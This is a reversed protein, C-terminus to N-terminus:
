RNLNEIAKFNKWCEFLARPLHFCGKWKGGKLTLLKNGERNLYGFWEGKERDPFRAWTYHHVKEYWEKVDNRGTLLYARSLAVLAELHVWWLKQDWELQQPPAGKSDMFYYIGGYEKDWSHDLIHLCLDTTQTILEPRNLRKAIDMLFWMAEIGHGPNLHRGEFTDLFRGETGNYEHILGTQPNYHKTLIQQVCNEYIKVVAEKSLLDEMEYTLYATMMPLGFSELPRVGTSKEFKGKPNDLRDMYKQYTTLAIALSEQDGSAKAYEYFGLAAFCDSFINFAHTLPKGERTLSFYFNGQEDRGHKKLFRIGNEAIQLWKENKEFRNYLMSFTWIQRGQLWMFKDTDYVKGTQDLCTFYGGFEKDISHNEWFPIVSEFLEKKYESRYARTLEPKM